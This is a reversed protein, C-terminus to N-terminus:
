ETEKGAASVLANVAQKIHDPLNPWATILQELVPDSAPSKQAYESDLHVLPHVNVQETDTVEQKNITQQVLGGSELDAPQPNLDRKAQWNKTRSDWRILCTIGAKELM